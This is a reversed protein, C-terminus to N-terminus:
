VSETCSCVTAAKRKEEDEDVKRAYFFGSVAFETDLMTNLEINSFAAM